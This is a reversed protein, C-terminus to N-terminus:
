LTNRGAAKAKAWRLKAAAAMKARVAPSFRKPAPKEVPAPPMEGKQRAWRLRQAEGIRRRAAASMARRQSTGNSSTSPEGNELLENLEANLADIRERLVIAQRLTSVSLNELSNMIPSLFYARQCHWTFSNISFTVLLIKRGAL